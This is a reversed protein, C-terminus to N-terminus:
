ILVRCLVKGGVHLESAKRKSLIGSSTSLIYFGNKPFDTIRWFISRSPTSYHQIKRILSNGHLYKLVIWINKKDDSLVVRQIFGEEQLLNAVQYCLNSYPYFLIPKQQTCANQLKSFFNTLNLM